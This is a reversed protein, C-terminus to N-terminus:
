SHRKNADPRASVSEADWCVTGASLAEQATACSPPRLKPSWPSLPTTARRRRWDPRARPMAVGFFLAWLILDLLWHVPGLLTMALLYAGVALCANLLGVRVWALVTVLFILGLLWLLTLM